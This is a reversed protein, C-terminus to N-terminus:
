GAAPREPGAARRRVNAAEEAVDTRYTETAWLVSAITIVCMAAMYVSVYFGGSPGLTLLSAAVLPAIGGGLVGALQYGISAGTYRSRTGFSESFFAAQPGYMADHGLNLGIVTALVILPISKTDIMPIYAFSFVLSVVAGFLYVPRRGLRDSLAGYLPTSVLGISAAVIVAVLLQGRELGLESEGYELIFVTFLYFLANEAIRAGMVTVLSKPHDRITAVLPIRPEPAVEKAEEFVPSELIRLRVYLGVGILVISLLFPIRWAWGLFAEESVSSSVILVVVTSTLLGGPVGMQTFAGYFGRRRRPAHEIAMLAAGGWEGGVGLGQVVRLVVLLVPGAFGITEYTPLLGILFTAIGMMVLSIILMKKRGLRDGYHGFIIGGIPRAVFGAAFTSLSALSAATPDINPFFLKDFVLAAMTGYLFFDYWELATGVFCAGLVRRM